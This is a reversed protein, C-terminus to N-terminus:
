TLYDHTELIIYIQKITHKEQDIKTFNQTRSRVLELVQLESSSLHEKSLLIYIGPINVTKHLNIVHIVM